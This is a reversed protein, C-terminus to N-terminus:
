SNSPTILRACEHLKQYELSYFCLNHHDYFKKENKGYSDDRFRDFEIAILVCPRLSKFSANSLIARHPDKAEDKDGFVISKTELVVFYCMEILLVFPDPCNLFNELRSM